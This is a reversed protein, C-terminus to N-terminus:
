PSAADTSLAIRASGHIVAPSCFKRVNMFVNFLNPPPQQSYRDWECTFVCEGGITEFGRRLGGIGAFLDIFKFAASKENRGGKASPVLRLGPPSKQVASKRTSSSPRRQKPRAKSGSPSFGFLGQNTGPTGSRSLALGKMAQITSVPPQEKGLEYLRFTAPSIGLLDSVDAESLGLASRTKSFVGM